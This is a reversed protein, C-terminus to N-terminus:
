SRPAAGRAEFAAALALQNGARDPNQGRYRVGYYRDGALHDTLYRIGQEVALLWGSATLGDREARTLGAAALAAGNGAAGSQVGSVFGDVIAEACEWRVGVLSADPEDEGVTSAASRLLDGVDYLLTGPM